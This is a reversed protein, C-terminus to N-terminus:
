MYVKKISKILAELDELYSKTLVPLSSHTLIDSNIKGSEQTPVLIPLREPSSNKKSVGTHNKVSDPSSVSSNDQM